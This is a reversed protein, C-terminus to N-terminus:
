ALLWFDKHRRTTILYGGLKRNRRVALVMCDANNICYDVIGGNMKGRAWRMLLRWTMSRKRQGLVLLSVGQRRAEEVITPGKERGEVLAVEVQVEPKWIHCMNKMTYLLESGRPNMERLTEEGQNSPKTVFLLVVIDQNQITHSLAWQLAAKADLSPDVIIMIRRGHGVEAGSISHKHSFQVTPDDKLPRSEISWSRFRVRAVVRNFCFGPSKPSSRGM